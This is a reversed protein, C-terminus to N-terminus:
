KGKAMETTVAAKVNPVTITVGTDQLATLRAAVATELAQVGATSLGYASARLMLKDNDSLTYAM